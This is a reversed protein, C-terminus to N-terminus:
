KCFLLIKAQKEYENYDNYDKIYDNLYHIVIKPIYMYINNDHYRRNIMYKKEFFNAYLPVFLDINFFSIVVNDKFPDGVEEEFDDGYKDIFEERAVDNYSQIFINVDHYVSRSMNIMIPYLIRKQSDYFLEKNVYNPLHPFLDNILTDFYFDLNKLMEAVNYQVIIGTKRYIITKFLQNNCIWQKSALCLNKIDTYDLHQIYEIAIDNFM